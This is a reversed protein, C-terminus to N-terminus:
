HPLIEWKELHDAGGASLTFKVYPKYLRMFTYWYQPAVAADQKTIIDEAQAYLAMRKANDTETYAQNVLQDYKPNSWNLESKAQGVKSDFLERSYTDADPYDMCWAERFMQPADTQRTVLFTKWDQNVLKVDVGLATKWMQQMAEAFAKNSESTNYMYTIEGLKAPDSGYTSAALQKKADVADSKVGLNPYDKPDLSAAVGPRIMYSAPIQNGKLVNDILSQRDIAESFALRVKPDDFPKKKTNMGMYATCQRPTIQLEKSLKPDAKVRDVDKSGSMNLMIDLKGTEYNALEPGQDLMTDVIETIKPKPINTTGPWLPNAILTMHDEHVWEKLVYPGYAQYFGPEIWRDGKDAIVWSPQAYVMSMTAVLPALGTPAAMTFQVTWDDLAKVGVADSLKQLDADSLKKTDAGNFENGGKFFGGITAGYDSATRPDITRKIGYEFDKATVLRDAGKDDKVAEVKGTGPNYKVWKVGLAKNINFVWTTGGDASKWDTALGPEALGNTENARTLGVYMEEIMQVSTTDTALAPDLTPVDNVGYNMRFINTAPPPPTPTVVVVQPTGAVIVTQVVPPAAPAPACAAAVVALAFMLTVLVVYKKM